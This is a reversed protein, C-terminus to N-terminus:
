EVRSAAKVLGAMGETLSQTIWESELAHLCLRLCDRAEDYKEEAKELETAPEARVGQFFSFVDLHAGFKAVREEADRKDEAKQRESEALQERKEELDGHLAIAIAERVMPAPSAAVRGGIRPVIVEFDIQEFDSPKMRVCLVDRMASRGDLTLDLFDDFRQGKRLVFVEVRTWREPDAFHEWPAGDLVQVKVTLSVFAAPAGSDGMSLSPVSFSMLRKPPRRSGSAPWEELVFHIREQEEGQEPREAQAM